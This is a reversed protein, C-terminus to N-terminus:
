KKIQILHYQSKLKYKYFCTELINETMDILQLKKKQKVLVKYLADKLIYSM